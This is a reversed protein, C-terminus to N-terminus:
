EKLEAGDDLHITGYRNFFNLIIALAVAAEAAAAVVIFLAVIQGSVAGTFPATMPMTLPVSPDIGKVPVFRAIAVFNLAAANLIMEVGMLVAVVNRRMMVIACGLGFTLASAILYHTLGIM